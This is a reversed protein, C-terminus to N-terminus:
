KFYGYTDPRYMMMSGAIIMLVKLGICILAFTVLGDLGHGFAGALGIVSLIGIVLFVGAVSLLTIRAWLKGAWMQSGLGLFLAAEILAGYLPKTGGLHAVLQLVANLLSLVVVGVFLAFAVRVSHPVVDSADGPRTTNKATV